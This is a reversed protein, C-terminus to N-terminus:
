SSQTFQTILLPLLFLSSSNARQGFPEQAHKRQIKLYDRSTTVFLRALTSFDLSIQPRRRTEIQANKKSSFRAVVSNREHNTRAFNQMRNHPRPHPIFCHSWHPSVVCKRRGMRQSVHDKMVSSHITSFYKNLIIRAHLSLCWSAPAFQSGEM